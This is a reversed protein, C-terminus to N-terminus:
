DDSEDSDDDDDDDDSDKDPEPGASPRITITAGPRERGTSSQWGVSDEPFRDSYGEEGVKVDFGAGALTQKAADVDQGLVTPVPKREGYLLKDDAKPFDKVEWDEVAPAMYDNWIPAAIAGGFVQSYFRGNITSNFMSTQSESHGVWVATAAEPIYGVFWADYDNNSTGTKGATPRPFNAASGTGGPGAVAQLAHTVRLSRPSLVDECAARSRFSTTM